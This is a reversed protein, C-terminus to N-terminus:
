IMYMTETLASPDPVVVTRIVYRKSDLVFICVM